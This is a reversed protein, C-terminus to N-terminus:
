SVQQFVPVFLLLEEKKAKGRNLNYVGGLLSPNIGM